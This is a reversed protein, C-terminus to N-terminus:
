ELAAITTDITEAHAKPAGGLPASPSIITPTVPYPSLTSCRLSIIVLPKHL